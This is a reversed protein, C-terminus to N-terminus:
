ATMVVNKGAKPAIRRFTSNCKSANYMQGFAKMLQIKDDKTMERIIDKRKKDLGKNYADIYQSTKLLRDQPRERELDGSFIFDLDRRDPQKFGGDEGAVMCINVPTGHGRDYTIVFHGHEQRFVCNLRRDMAKLEKMFGRDPNIM